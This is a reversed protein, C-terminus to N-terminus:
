LGDISKLIEKEEESFIEEPETKRTSKKNNTNKDPKKPNYNKLIKKYELLQSMRKTNWLINVVQYAIYILLIMIFLIALKMAGPTTDVIHPIKTKDLGYM